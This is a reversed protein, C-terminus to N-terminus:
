LAFLPILYSETILVRVSGYVARVCLLSRHTVRAISRLM